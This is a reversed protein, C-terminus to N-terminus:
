GANVFINEPPLAALHREHIQRYAAEIHRASLRTNFAPAAIRNHALRRRIDALRPPDTALAVALDEYQEQSSAVLDPLQLANLLSATVRGAFSAGARSLLPLGAWLADVATTHANYPLTDLFLDAARHRALHEAMSELRQAFILRDGSVGRGAAERRLNTTTRPSDHKLWLVSEGVRNLIRMWGDFTGPMIKYASNFCCFVFGSKPLGLEERSFDRDSVARTTDSVLYSHPLYIIKETCEAKEAEPLLTRDAILYDIYPAGTTGPYGLYAVQVPAARMSFIKPRSDTTFGGLDVAIDLGMERALLVVDSDSKARVDLFRDFAGELRKRMADQTDPGFSFASLEFGGRDHTEFLEASLTSVAHERFDASFYGIKIKNRRERKSIAPFARDPRYEQSVWREAIKRQLGASDSLAIICFPNLAAPQRELDEMLRALESELDPWDCSQIRAYLRLARLPLSGPDLSIAADYSAVAAEYQKMDRLVNGRNSHAEAFDGQLAIARNYNELAAQWMKLEKFINGRNSYAEAWDPRVAIARNYSDLAEPLRRLQKLTKARNLHAEACDPKVALANAFCSLAADWQGLESLSLGWNVHVAFAAPNRPDSEVARRFLRVADPFLKTQAAIVGSLHLADFHGPKRDLIRRYIERAQALRGQQHLSMARDLMDPLPGPRNLRQKM